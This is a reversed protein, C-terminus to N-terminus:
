FNDTFKNTLKPKINYFKTWTSSMKRQWKDNWWHAMCTVWKNDPILVTNEDSAVFDLSLRVECTCSAVKYFPIGAKLMRWHLIFKFFFFNDETCHKHQEDNKFYYLETHLVSTDPSILYAFHGLDCKSFTYEM